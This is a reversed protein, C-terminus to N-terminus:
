LLYRVQCKENFEDCIVLTSALAKRRVKRPTFHETELGWQEGYAKYYRLNQEMVGDEPELLSYSFACPVARRGDNVPNVFLARSRLTKGLKGM